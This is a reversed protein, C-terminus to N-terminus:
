EIEIDELRAWVKQGDELEVLYGLEQIVGRARRGGAIPITVDAGILSTEPSESSEDSEESSERANGETAEAVSLSLDSLDVRTGPVAWHVTAIELLRPLGSAIESLSAEKAAERIAQEVLKGASQVVAQELGEGHIERADDLANVFVPPDEVAFRLTGFLRASDGIPRTVRFQLPARKVFVALDFPQGPAHRGPGLAGIVAGDRVAVLVDDGDVSIQCDPPFPGEVVCAADDGERRILMSM